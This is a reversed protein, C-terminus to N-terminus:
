LLSGSPLVFSINLVDYIRRCGQPTAATWIVRKYSANSLLKQSWKSRTTPFSNLVTGPVNRSFYLDLHKFEVTWNMQTPICQLTSLHLLSIRRGKQFKSKLPFDIEWQTSFHVESVSTPPESLEWSFPPREMPWFQLLRFFLCSRFISETRVALSPSCSLRLLCM